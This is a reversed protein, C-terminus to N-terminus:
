VSGIIFVLDDKDYNTKGEAILKVMKADYTPNFNMFKVEEEYAFPMKIKEIDFLSLVSDYEAYEPKMGTEYFIVKKPKHRLWGLLLSIATMGSGVNIHVTKDEVFKMKEADHKVWEYIDENQATGTSIFASNENYEQYFSKKAVSKGISLRTTSLKVTKSGLQEARKIIETRKVYYVVSNKNYYNCLSAVIVSSESYSSSMVGYTKVNPFRKSIVEDFERIKYNKIGNIQYMLDLRVFNIGNINEIKVDQTKEIM